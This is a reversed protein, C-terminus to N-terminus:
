RVMNDLLRNMLELPIKEDIEFHEDKLFSFM